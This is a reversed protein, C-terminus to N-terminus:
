KKAQPPFLKDLKRLQRRIHEETIKLQYSLTDIDKGLFYSTFLLEERPICAAVVCHLNHLYGHFGKVTGLALRLRQQERQKLTSM